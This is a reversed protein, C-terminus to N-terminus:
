LAFLEGTEEMAHVVAVSSHLLSDDEHVFYAVGWGQASRELVTAPTGTEPLGTVSHFGPLRRLRDLGPVSRLTGTAGPVRLEIRALARAPRYPLELRRAFQEPRLFREALLHLRTYGFAAFYPDASSRPGTPWPEVRVPRFGDATRRLETRASGERVGLADLSGVAATIAGREAPGLLSHAVSDRHVLVGGDESQHRLYVEAVLHRGASSVTHVEYTEGDPLGHLLVARGTGLPGRHLEAVAAAVEAATRCLRGPETGAGTAPRALVPWDTWGDLVTALQEPTEVVAGAVAPLGAELLTRSMVAPDCRAAALEPDHYPLGFDRALQEALRGGSGSAAIVADPRRGAWGTWPAPGGTREAQSSFVPLCDAGQERLTRALDAGSFVPDVLLFM